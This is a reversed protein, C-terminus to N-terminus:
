PTYTVQIMYLLFMICTGYVDLFGGFIGAVKFDRGM